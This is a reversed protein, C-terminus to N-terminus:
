REPAEGSIPHDPHVSPRQPGPHTRSHSRRNRIRAAGSQPDTLNRNRIEIGRDRQEAFLEVAPARHDLRGGNEASRAGSREGAEAGDSGEPESDFSQRRQVSRRRVPGPTEALIQFLLAEPRRDRDSEGAKPNERRGPPSEAFLNELTGVLFLADRALGRQNSEAKGVLNELIEVFQVDVPKPVQEAEGSFRESAAVSLFQASEM